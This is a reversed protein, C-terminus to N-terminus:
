LADDRNAHITRRQAFGAITHKGAIFIPFLIASVSRAPM